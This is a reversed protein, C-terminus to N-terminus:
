KFFKEPPLAKEIFYKDLGAIDGSLFWAFFGKMDEKKKVRLIRPEHKKSVKGYFIYFSVGKSEGVISASLYRDISTNKVSVTPSSKMEREPTQLQELWPFKDLYAATSEKTVPGIVHFSDNSDTAYQVDLIYQSDNAYAFASSMVLLLIAFLKIKNM